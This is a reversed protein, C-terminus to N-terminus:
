ARKVALVDYLPPLFMFTDPDSSAEAWCAMFERQEDATLCGQEVLRPVYNSWFSDPWHWIMNGPRAVRENISLHEVELGHKRCLAPVRAVIDPDGGRSRWSKGVARIVRTFAERRPALTMAEYNFYDQIAFRGGPKLLRAVGRIIAEPDAVFCLVWRAYAGDFAGDHGALLTDIQTADGLIREINTLRRSTQKDLLHKLFLPSEDIAVVRGSEGVIEALDAAAHGPGCGVDLLSMGPQFRAREWLRHACASWLRNQLGLRNIERADTGLVYEPEGPPNAATRTM